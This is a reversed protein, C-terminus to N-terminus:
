KEKKRLLKEMEQRMKEAFARGKASRRGLDRAMQKVERLALRADALCHEQMEYGHRIDDCVMAVDAHAGKHGVLALIEDASERAKEPGLHGLLMPIDNGVGRFLTAMRWAVGAVDKDADKAATECTEIWRGAIASYEGIRAHIRGVHRVMAALREKVAKAEQKSRERRFVREVWRTVETPTSEVQEGFGELDLVYQCVGVGVSNRMVDIPCFTELPTAQTRDLPYVVGTRATLRWGRKGSPRGEGSQDNDARIFAETGRLRGGWADDRKSDWPWSGDEQTEFFWKSRRRRDPRAFSVRWKAAFPPKWALPRWTWSDEMTLTREHWIGPAELVAHWVSEGEACEVECGQIARQRGEGAALVDANRENSGWVCVGIADSGDLLALFQNEAPIGTRAHELNGPWLVADRTRIEPVVVYRIRDRLVLRGTGKGPRFEVIAM